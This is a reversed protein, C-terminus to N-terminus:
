AGESESGSFKIEEEVSGKPDHDKHLMTVGERIPLNTKRKHIPKEGGKDLTCVV